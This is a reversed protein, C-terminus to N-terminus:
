KKAPTYGEGIGFEAVFTGTADFIQGRHNGFDTVYLKKDNGFAIGKPKYFEGAGVGWRGWQRIFVGQANFQQIRHAGTDSVYVDGNAPNIAIGFPLVFKGQEPGPGGWGFLFKGEPTLVQIRYNYHDVVYLRDGDPSFALDIPTRFQGNGVGYSGFERIKKFTKDFVFVKSSPPDVIYLQEGNKSFRLASPETLGLSGIASKNGAADSVEAKGYDLVKILKSAGSVFSKQSGQGVAQLEFQQLRLNGSDNVFINADKIALGSPRRFEGPKVGQQGLKTILKPGQDATVEFVLVAHTDPESIALVNGEMTARKGYHFKTAKDWWASDNLAVITPAQSLAFVQCRNEFPECATLETGGPNIALREVYHLRGYGEHNVIPHRGFQYLFQGDESFAQIRHNIQDAIYIKGGTATIGTPNALMSGYSGWTGWSKIFKGKASYKFVASLDHDVVFIDGTKGIAIDVPRALANRGERDGFTGILQGDLRFLQVRKNNTDVVAVQKSASDVAMAMPENFEGPGSGFRGWSRVHTGDPRLVQIRHNGTDSVYLLGDTDATVSKPANFQGPGDGLSGISGIPRGNREVIQVRHNLTDAMALRDSSLYVVGAVDNFQGALRGFSGFQYVPRLINPYKSEEPPLPLEGASVSTALLLTLLPGVSSRGFFLKFLTAM